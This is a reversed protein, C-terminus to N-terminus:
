DDDTEVEDNGDDNRDDEDADEAQIHEGTKESFCGDGGQWACCATCAMNVNHCEYRKSKCTMDSDCSCKIM